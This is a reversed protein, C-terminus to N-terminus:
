GVERGPPDISKQWKQFDSRYRDVVDKADILEEGTRERYLKMADIPAVTALREEEENLPPFADLREKELAKQLLQLADRVECSITLDHQMGELLRVKEKKSALKGLVIPNFIQM